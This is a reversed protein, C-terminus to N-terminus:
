PTALPSESKDKEDRPPLWRTKPRRLDSVDIGDLLLALENAPMTAVLGDAEMRPLKFRGCELRKLFLCSGTGDFYYIKARSRDRSFFVFVAGGHPNMNLESRCLAAIRDIGCRMDLSKASCFVRFQGSPMLM